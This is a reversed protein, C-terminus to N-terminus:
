TSKAVARCVLPHGKANADATIADAVREADELSSTPLLIGGKRHITMTARTATEGDFALHRSLTDVVFEMPTGTDNLIELGSTFGSPVLAPMTLLSTNRPFVPSQDHRLPTGKALRVGAILALLGITALLGELVRTDSTTLSADGISIFGGFILALLTAGIVSLSAGVVRIFARRPPKM